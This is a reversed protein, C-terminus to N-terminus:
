RGSLHGSTPSERVQFRGVETLETKPHWGGISILAVSSIHCCALHVDIIHSRNALLRTRTDLKHATFEDPVNNNYRCLESATPRIM